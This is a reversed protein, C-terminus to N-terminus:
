ANESSVGKNKTSLESLTVQPKYQVVCEPWVQESLPIKGMRNFRIMGEAKALFNNKPYRLKLYKLLNYGPTTGLPALLPHLMVRQRIPRPILNMRFKFEDVSEPADLSQVTFFIKRIEARSLFDCSVQFFLVNNVHDRLFNTRSIAYPVCIVDGIRATFLAGALEENSIAAWAEFGALGQAALCLRKWTDEKMSTSRDQRELTDHQLLWGEEAMRTFPIREVHFCAQGKRVGNRAQPKLSELTYPRILEIHYSAKGEAAELPTSYRLSIIGRTLILQRLEEMSPEIVSFFPFAQLTRPGADYWYSSKTRFVTHGQRILWEAFIETNM